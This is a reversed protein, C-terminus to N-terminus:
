IAVSIPRVIVRIEGEDSEYACSCGYSRIDGGFQVSSIKNHSTSHFDENQSIKREIDHFCLTRCSLSLLMPVWNFDMVKYDLAVLM